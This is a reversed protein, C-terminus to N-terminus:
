DKFRWQADPVKARLGELTGILHARPQVVYPNMGPQFADEWNRLAGKGFVNAVSPDILGAYLAALCSLPGYASVTIEQRRKRVAESARVIQWAGIFAVSRGLYIPYRLEIGALEGTGLIDIFLTNRADKRLAYEAAKGADSVVIELLGPTPSPNSFIGPTVLGPQSEFTVSRKEAPGAERYNLATREPLGGNIEILKSASTKKPSHELYALTLERMTQENSVPPDLALLQRDESPIANLIPQRVPSGDGLGKLYKDFFGIMAERMPQNYDHPGPFIKTMADQGRGFLSWAEVMKKGTLRMADPPFEPDNEAGFLYVPKPAQIAVVDSRDGIQCTGPVHNCLCGNDPALEMSSMYVVPVAAKYRDDAAFAYLTALGGGSAGTIGVKSMDADPRTELYDLARICDWVYYGTANTAMALFWDNHDGEARREILNTGEFSHGPSDIAIAMYGRLACFAARLQVRDENKKHAWHGNVHVVVPLKGVPKPDPLYIHGTVFFNPRSEFVLKEIKYGPRQITGTIRAALPSKPPMPELGLCRYLEAKRRSREREFESLNPPTPRKSAAIIQDKLWKNAMDRGKGGLIDDDMAPGPIPTLSNMGQERAIVEGLTLFPIDHANMFDPIVSTSLDGESGADVIIASKGNPAAQKLLSLLNKAADPIHMRQTLRAQVMWISGNGLRLRAVGGNGFVEWGDSPEFPQWMIDRTEIKTLGLAEGPDFLSVNRNALRPKVPLWDMPYRGSTLDQQMVLLNMGSEVAPLLKRQTQKPFWRHFDEGRTAVVLWGYKEPNLVKADLFTLAEESSYFPPTPKQQSPVVLYPQADQWWPVRRMTGDLLEVEAALAHGWPERKFEAVYRGGKRVMETKHFFTSSPLPKELMCARRINRAPISLAVQEGTISLSLAGVAPRVVSPMGRKAPPTPPLSILPLLKSGDESIQPLLQSWHFDHRHIRLRDTFPKYMKAEPSNSLRDWAFAPSQPGTELLLPDNPKLTGAEAKALVEGMRLRTSYYHGLHGLQKIAADFEVLEPISRAGFSGFLMRSFDLAAAAESPRLRGDKGGTAELAIAEKASMFVHSDFPEGELFSYSNGGSELEPAHSRHDPGLGYAMFATPVIKSAEKWAYALRSGADRGYKRVLMADFRSDPTTPDYGLRGWGAMYMEDREINWKNALPPGQWYYRPEQPFYSSMSEITYGSATGIKMSQISTRTLQPQYFPFIRHTGNARVQWVIKYPQAPWRLEPNQIESGLNAYEDGLPRDIQKGRPEPRYPVIRDLIPEAAPGGSATSRAAVGNGRWMTKSKEDGSDSLYDEYWYSYWNATRGGAMIYPAGWQEGNYKIEVTFDDSERALPVVRAKRTVWSRTYLPINRGSERVAEQYCKFFEPGRGSEGIRFGIKDLDPAQRIMKEVVEKTYEYVEPEDGKYPPKFNHPTDFRAEYSMLSVRIGHRHAERIIWNLRNLNTKKIEPAVGVLPFKDSQIFYAYLNPFRTTDLDYPGHIDLWNLRSWAMQKFLTKWYGENHFFWRNPDTLAAPDNDVFNKEYDWPLPLFMNWGRDELFPKGKIEGKAFAKVGSLQVREALELQGYLAGNEDGALISVTKGDSRIVYGEKPIDRKITTSIKPLWSQLSANNLVDALQEHGYAM